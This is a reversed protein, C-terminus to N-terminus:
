EKRYEAKGYVSPPLILFYEEPDELDKTLIKSFAPPHYRYFQHNEEIMRKDEPGDVRGKAAWTLYPKFYMYSVEKSYELQEFVPKPKRTGLRKDKKIVNGHEDIM